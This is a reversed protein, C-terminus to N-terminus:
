FRELVGLLQILTAADFGRAAEIRRGGAVIVALGSDAAYSAAPRQACLEVALLNVGAAEAQRRRGCYRNLTSLSLGHTRCFESRSLGSAEYAAVLEAIEAQSRRRRVQISKEQKDVRNTM